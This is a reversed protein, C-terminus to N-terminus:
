AEPATGKRSRPLAKAPKRARAAAELAKQVWARTAEPEEFAEPPAELYQLAVSKGDRVYTFPKLSKEEFEARTLPDTKLYLQDGVIIAFICNGSYVGYGGFMARVRLGPVFSMRNIVFEAFGDLSITVKFRLKPM